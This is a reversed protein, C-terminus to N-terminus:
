FYVGAPFHEVRERAEELALRSKGIGGPGTITVLRVDPRLLLEKAAAIEKERGVFGPRQLPINSQRSEAHRVPKESFRDRIAALEHALDRTAAYRKEPEKALCREIAWCLPAPAEPVHAGVPDP